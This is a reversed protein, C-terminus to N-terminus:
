LYCQVKPPLQVPAWTENAQIVEEYYPVMNSKTWVHAPYIVVQQDLLYRAMSPPSAVPAYQLQIEEELKGEALRNVYLFKM